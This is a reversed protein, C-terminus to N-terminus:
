DKIKNVIKFLKSFWQGTKEAEFRMYDQFADPLMQCLAQDRDPQVDPKYSVTGDSHFTLKFSLAGIMARCDNLMCNYVASSDDENIKISHVAFGTLDENLALRSKVDQLDEQAKQLAATSASTAVPLAASSPTTLSATSSGSAGVTKLKSQLSKSHQIEANLEQKTRSLDAVLEEIERKKELEKARVTKELEKAWKADRSEARKREARVGEEKELLAAELAAIRATTDASVFNSPSPRPPSSIPGSKSLNARALRSTLDAIEARLGENETKYSQLTKQAETMREKAIGELIKESEEAKTTRLHRLQEHAEQIEQLARNTLDLKAQLRKEKATMGSEDKSTSRVAAVLQKAKTAAAAGKKGRAPQQQQQDVDMNDLQTDAVTATRGAGDHGEEEEDEEADDGTEEEAPARKGRQKNVISASQKATPAKRRTISKAKTTIEEEDQEVDSDDAPPQVARKGSAKGAAKAGAM